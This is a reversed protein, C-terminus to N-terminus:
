LYQGVVMGTSLFINSLDNVDDLLVILFGMALFRPYAMCPNRAWTGLSSTQFWFTLSSISTGVARFSFSCDGNWWWWWVTSPCFGAGGPITLVRYIIPYDDDKTTCSKTWWWIELSWPGLSSQGFATPAATRSPSRSWQLIQSVRTATVSNFVGRKTFPFVLRYNTTEMWWSNFILWFPFRGWILTFM